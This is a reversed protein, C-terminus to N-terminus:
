WTIFRIQDLSDFYVVDIQIYIERVLSNILQKFDTQNLELQKEQEIFVKAITMCQIFTLKEAQVNQCRQIIDNLIYTILQYRQNLTDISPHVRHILHFAQEIISEYQGFHVLICRGTAEICKRRYIDLMDYTSLISAYQCIIFEKTSSLKENVSSKILRYFYTILEHFDPHITIDDDEENM